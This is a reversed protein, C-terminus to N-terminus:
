ASSGDAMAAKWGWLQAKSDAFFLLDDVYRLYGKVRLQRKVFHDFPNLYINAWFQSTLNGIPLGRPRLAAFLGQGTGNSPDDFPFYVMEYAESLVGEGANTGVMAVAQFTQSGARSDCSAPPLLSLTKGRIVRGPLEFGIVEGQTQSVQYGYKRGLANEESPSYHIM